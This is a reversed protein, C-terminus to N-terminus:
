TGAREKAKAMRFGKARGYEFALAIAEVGGIETTLALVEKWSADYRRNRSVNSKRIYEKIKEIENM